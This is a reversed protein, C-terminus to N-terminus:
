HPSGPSATDLVLGMVLADWLQGNRRRWHRRLRGEHEFGFKEYLAIARTNHPWVQLTVKHAGHDRAFDIAATMLARGVGQGRWGDAVAMGLDAVGSPEVHIYINGVQRSPTADEAEALFIAANPDAMTQDYGRRRADRDLPAESGLWKGEAAVAEFVEVWADFDDPEAPRIRLDTV